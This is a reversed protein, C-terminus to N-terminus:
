KPCFKNPNCHMECYCNFQLDDIGSFTYTKQFNKRTLARLKLTKDRVGINYTCSLHICSYSVLAITVVAHLQEMTKILYASQMGKLLFLKLYLQLIDTESSFFIQNKECKKKIVSSFNYITCHIDCNWIFHSASSM